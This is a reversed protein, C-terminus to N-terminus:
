LRHKNATVPGDELTMGAWLGLVDNLATAVPATDQWTHVICERSFLFMSRQRTTGEGAGCPPRLVRINTVVRAESNAAFYPTPVGLGGVLMKIVDPLRDLPCRMHTSTDQAPIYSYCPEFLLTPPDSREDRALAVSLCTESGDDGDEWVSGDIDFFLSEIMLIVATSAVVRSRQAREDALALDWITRAVDM